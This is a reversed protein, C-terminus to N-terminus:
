VSTHPALSHRSSQSIGGGSLIADGAPQSCSTTSSFQVPLEASISDDQSELESESRPVRFSPGQITSSKEPPTSSFELASGVISGFSPESYSKQVAVLIIILTPYTAQLNPYSDINSKKELAFNRWSVTLHPLM